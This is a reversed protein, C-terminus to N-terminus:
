GRAEDTGGTAALEEWLRAFDPMTKATTAIDEVAIGPVALGIIAGATAMRHDAYSHFTGARLPRPRIILGDATEEVDGGLANFEAALAALRDTEHGRLHAIGTLRSEGDALACLAALTPALESSEDQEIGHIRAGGTVTLVSDEGLLVEAGMRALIERWADGVQTTERPWHPIRITGGTALAAALFPGANSLDPEMVLDFARIPGAAVFWRGPVSDDVEVGLERLTAVTMRIHDPSPIKEGTSIIELGNETRAGILLLASIFQSSGTADLEVRGGALEGTGALTFPLQGPEGTERLEVGLDKLADVVPRMPRLRAHADGDFSFEGRALAALPPVFRMVTGALGCDIAIKGLDRDQDIPEVLLDVGHEGTVSEITAGLARLAEVMLEADRSVLANRVRSPGDAMAALLLYRNTLSKSAPVVVTADVPGSPHPAKWLPLATTRELM